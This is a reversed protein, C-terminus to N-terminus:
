LSIKEANASLIKKGIGKVKLLDDVQKFQGNKNRWAVIAKARELGVGKLAAALEEASANNVNISNIVASQVPTVSEASQKSTNDAQAYMVVSATPMVSLATVIALKKFAHGPIRNFKFM